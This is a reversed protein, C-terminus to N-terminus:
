EFNGVLGAELIHMLARHSGAIDEASALNWEESSWHEDVETLLSILEKLATRSETSIPM